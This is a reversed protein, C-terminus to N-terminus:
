QRGELLPHNRRAFSGEYRREGSLSQKPSLFPGGGAGVEELGALDTKM